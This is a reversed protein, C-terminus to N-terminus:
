ECPRSYRWKEHWFELCMVSREMIVLEAFALFVDNVVSMQDRPVAFVRQLTNRRAPNDAVQCSTFAKHALEGPRTGDKHLCSVGHYTFGTKINPGIALMDMPWPSTCQRAYRPTINLRSTNLIRRSPIPTFPLRFIYRSYEAAGLTVVNDPIITRLRAEHHLIFCITSMAVVRISDM